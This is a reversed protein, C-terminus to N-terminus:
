NYLTSSQSPLFSLSYPLCIDFFIQSSDLLNALLLIDMEKICARDLLTRTYYDRLSFNFSDPRTDPSPLHRSDALIKAHLNGPHVRPLFLLLPFSAPPLKSNPWIYTWAIFTILDMIILNLQQEYPPTDERAEGEDKSCGAEPNQDEFLNRFLEYRNVIRLIELSLM